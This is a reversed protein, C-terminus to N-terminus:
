LLSRFLILHISSKSNKNSLLENELNKIEEIIININELAPESSSLTVMRDESLFKKNEYEDISGDFVALIDNTLSDLRLVASKLSDDKSSLETLEAIQRRLNNQSDYYSTM